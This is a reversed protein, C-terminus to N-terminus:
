PTPSSFWGQKVAFALEFCLPTPFADVNPEILCDDATFTYSPIELRLPWEALPLRGWTEVFDPISSPRKAREVAQLACTLCLQNFGRLLADPYPFPEKEGARVQELYSILGRALLSLMELDDLKTPDYSM